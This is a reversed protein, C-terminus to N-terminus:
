SKRKRKQSTLFGIKEEAKPDVEPVMLKTIVRFVQKFQSDYRKELERLKRALQENTAVLQRIRVFSRIIQINVQIARESNLVSSLMAVGQETFAFPKYRRGGRGNNSTVIQSKLIEVEQETLQFMFDEPFRRINRKVAQNFVKTSVGYLNALDSDLMAKKGRILFIKNFIREDPIVSITRDAM